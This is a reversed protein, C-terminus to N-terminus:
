QFTRSCKHSPPSTPGTGDANVVYVEFGLGDRDSTFAIQSGDPSWAPKHDRASHITVRFLGTGDANMTYIEDNGDRNTQFAIKSGDPSWEANRDAAANNTLNTLGSLDENIVYIEPNGDRSTHFAIKSNSFSKKLTTSVYPNPIGSPMYDNHNCGIFSAILLVSCTIHLFFNDTANRCSEKMKVSGNLKSYCDDNNIEPTMQVPYTM